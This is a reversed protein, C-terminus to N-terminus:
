LTVRERVNYMGLFSFAWWVVHTFQACEFWTFTYALYAIAVTEIGRYPSNIVQLLCLGLLTLYPILGVLGVSLAM